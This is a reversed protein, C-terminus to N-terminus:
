RLSLTIESKQAVTFSLKRNVLYKLTTRVECPLMITGIAKSLLQHRMITSNSVGLRYFKVKILVSSVISTAIM